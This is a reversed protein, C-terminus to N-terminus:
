TGIFCTVEYDLCICTKINYDSQLIVATCAVLDLDDVLLGTNFQCGIVAAYLDCDIIFVRFPSLRREELDGNGCRDKRIVLPRYRETIIETVEDYLINGVKMGFLNRVIRVIRASPVVAGVVVAALDLDVTVVLVPLVIRVLYDFVICVTSGVRIRIRFSSDILLICLSNIDMCIGVIEIRRECPIVAVLEKLDRYAEVASLGLHHGAEYIIVAVDVPM